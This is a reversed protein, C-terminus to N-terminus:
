RLDDTLTIDAETQEVLAILLHRRDPSITLNSNLPEVRRSLTTVRTARRTSFSFFAVSPRDVNEADLYYLGDDDVLAWCRAYGSRLPKSLVLEESGGSLPMRWIRGDDESKSYYLYRGDSSESAAFGGIATIQIAQGGESPVRWIQELGTRNSEFYIWCGDRSWTPIADIAPDTTLRRPTGGTARVVFIDFGGDGSSDFAISQGDPSWRPTGSV